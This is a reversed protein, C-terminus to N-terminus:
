DAHKKAPSSMYDFLSYGWQMLMKEIRALPFGVVNYYCGTIREVILSGYGQIAYAGAKDLPNIRKLYCEIENTSLNRFVVSTKEANVLMRDNKVDKLCVGSIVDHKKGNLMHLFHHAEDMSSPKGLVRGCHVVVTDAGVVIGESLDTAVALAKGRANAKVYCRPSQGDTHPPEVFSSPVTNFVIGMDRLMASRRPSASALILNQMNMALAKLAISM